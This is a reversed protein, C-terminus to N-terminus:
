TPTMRLALVAIDDAPGASADNLVGDVIEGLESEPRISARLRELGVPLPEDRREILGDTFLLLGTGPELAFTVPESPWGGLHGLPPDVMLAAITVDDDTFVMPPLHGASWIQASGTGRDIDVVLMTAMTEETECVRNLTDLMTAVEGNRELEVRALLRLRGMLAAADVGSGSVDGVSFVVRQESASIDYWDGGVSLGASGPAYRTAVEFGPATPETRPLLSRQLRVATRRQRQYEVLAAAVTGSREAFRALGDSDVFAAEDDTMGSVLIEGRTASGPLGFPFRLTRGRSARPGREIETGAEEDIVIATTSGVTAIVMAGAAIQGVIAELADREDAPSVLTKTLVEDLQEQAALLRTARVQDTVDQQTAVFHTITGAHDRVPDISWNLVFPTGDARYNVTEGSFRRGASLDARLRDLVARDTLPGQNQRPTAGIVEERRRGTMACYAPNVYVIEPGPEDLDATTICTPSRTQELAAVLVHPLEPLGSLASRDLGPRTGDDTM